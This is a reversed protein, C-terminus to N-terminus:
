FLPCLLPPALLSSSQLLFLGFITHRHSAVWSPSSEFHILPSYFHLTQPPSFDPHPALQSTGHCGEWKMRELLVLFFFFRSRLCSSLFYCFVCTTNRSKERHPAQFCPIGMEPMLPMHQSSTPILLPSSFFSKIAQCQSPRLHDSVVLLDSFESRTM